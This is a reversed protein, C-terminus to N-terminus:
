DPTPREIRDIVLAEQPATSPQLRLGLQEQLATYISADDNTPAAADTNLAPTWALDIDFEGVLGTRDLVPRGVRSSLLAALSRLPIGRLTMSAAGAVGRCVPEGSAAAQAAKVAEPNDCDIRSPRLRNGVTGDRRSVVLEFVPASRMETHVRLGFRDRLLSQLLPAFQKGETISPDAIAILDYRETKIWGPAGVFREPPITLYAFSILMEPTANILRYRGGPQPGGGSPRPEGSTNRRLSVVEFAPQQAALTLDCAVVVVLLLGLRTM